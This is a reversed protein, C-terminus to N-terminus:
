KKDDEKKNEKKLVEIWVKKGETAPSEVKSSQASRVEDKCSQGQAITLRSPFPTQPVNTIVNFDFPPDFRVECNRLSSALKEESDEVDVVEVPEDLPMQSTKLNSMPSIVSVKWVNPVSQSPLKGM